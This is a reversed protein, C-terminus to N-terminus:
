SPIRPELSRVARITQKGDRIKKTKRFQFRNLNVEAYQGKPEVQDRTRWMLALQDIRKRIALSREIARLYTHVRCLQGGL